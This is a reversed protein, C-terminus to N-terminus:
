PDVSLADVVLQGFRLASQDAVHQCELISDVLQHVGVVVVLEVAWVTEARVHLAGAGVAMRVRDARNMLRHPPHAEALLRMGALVAM